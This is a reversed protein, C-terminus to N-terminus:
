SEWSKLYTVEKELERIREILTTQEAQADALAAQVSLIKQNLEVTKELIQAADRLGTMTKIIDTTAKIANLGQAIALMDPV